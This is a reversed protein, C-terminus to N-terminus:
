FDLNRVFGSAIFTNTPHSIHSALHSFTRVLPIYALHNCAGSSPRSRIYKSLNRFFMYIPWLKATGFDALHTSDSWFMLAAVVKELKCGPDDPPPRSRNQIHSHEEIFADSHYLESYLRQDTGTVPSWHM